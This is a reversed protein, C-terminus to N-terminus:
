CKKVFYILRFTPLSNVKLSKLFFLEPTQYPSYFIDVFWRGLNILKEGDVDSLRQILFNLRPLHWLQVKNLKESNKAPIAVFCHAM